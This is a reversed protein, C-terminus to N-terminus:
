ETAGQSTVYKGQYLGLLNANFKAVYQMSLSYREGQELPSLTRLVLYDNEEYFTPPGNLPVVENGGETVFRFSEVSYNLEKTHLLIIDTSQLCGFHITINGAFIGQHIDTRISLVYHSPKLDTPLRFNEWVLPSASPEFVQGIRPTVVTDPASTNSPKNFFHDCTSRVLLAVLVFTIILLILVAFCLISKMCNPPCRRSHHRYGGGGSVRVEDEGAGKRSRSVFNVIHERKGPMRVATIEVGESECRAVLPKQSDTKHHLLQLSKKKDNTQRCCGNERGSELPRDSVPSRSMTCSGCDVFM